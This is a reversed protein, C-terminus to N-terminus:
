SESKKEATPASQARQAKTQAQRKDQYAKEGALKAEQEELIATNDSAPGEWSEAVSFGEPNDEKTRTITRGSVVTSGMDLEPYATANGRVAAWRSAEYNSSNPDESSNAYVFLRLHRPTSPNALVEAIEDPVSVSEGPAVNVMRDFSGDDKCLVRSWTSSGLYRIDAM